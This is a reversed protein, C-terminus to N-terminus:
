LHTSNVLLTVASGAGLLRVMEGNCPEYDCGWDSHDNLSIISSEARYLLHGPKYPGVMIGLDGSRMELLSIEPGLSRFLRHQDFRNGVVREREVVM